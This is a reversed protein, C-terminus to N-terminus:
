CPSPAEIDRIAASSLSRSAFFPISTGTLDHGNSSIGGQINGIQVRRKAAEIAKGSTRLRKRRGEDPRADARHTADPLAPPATFTATAGPAV